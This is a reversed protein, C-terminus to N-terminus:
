AAKFMVGTCELVKETETVSFVCVSVRQVDHGSASDRFLASLFSDGYELVTEVGIAQLGATIGGGLGRSDRLPNVASLRLCGILATYLNIRIRQASPGTISAFTRSLLNSIGADRRQGAEGDASDVTRESTFIVSALKQAQSTSGRLSSVRVDIAICLLLHATSNQQEMTPSASFPLAEGHRVLFNRLNGKMFRLVPYSMSGHSLIVHLLKYGEMVVAADVLGKLNEDLINVLSHLCNKPTGYVGPNQLQSKQLPKQISFGLLFHVLSPHPLNVGSEASEAPESHDLTVRFRRIKKLM